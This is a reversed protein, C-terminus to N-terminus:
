ASPIKVFVKLRILPVSTSKGGTSYAAKGFYCPMVCGPKARCRMCTVRAWVLSILEHGCLGQFKVSRTAVPEGASQFQRVIPWGGREYASAREIHRRGSGRVAARKPMVVIKDHLWAIGSCVERRAKPRTASPIASVGPGFM